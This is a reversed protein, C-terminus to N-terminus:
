HPMFENGGSKMECPEGIIARSGRSAPAKMFRRPGAMSAAKPAGRAMRATDAWLRLWSGSSSAASSGVMTALSRTNPACAAMSWPALASAREILNSRSVGLTRAIVSM